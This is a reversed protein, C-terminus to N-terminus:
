QNKVRALLRERFEKYEPKSEIAERVISAEEKRRSLYADVTMRNKLYYAIVAYVNELSLVPYQSLIEEPTAGENFAYVVTDLRVRTGRIRIIGDQGTELPVTLTQPASM